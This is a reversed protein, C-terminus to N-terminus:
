DYNRIYLYTVLRRNFISQDTGARANKLVKDM